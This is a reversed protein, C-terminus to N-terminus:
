SKLINLIDTQDCVVWLERSGVPPSRRGWRDNEKVTGFFDGWCKRQGKEKKGFHWIECEQFKKTKRALQKSKLNEESFSYCTNSWTCNEILFGGVTNQFVPSTTDWIPCESKITIAKIGKLEEQALHYYYYGRVECLHQLSLHVATLLVTLSQFSLVLSFWM